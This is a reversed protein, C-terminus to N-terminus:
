GDLEAYRGAEYGHDAFLSAMFAAPCLLRDVLDVM